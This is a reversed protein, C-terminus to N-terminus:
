ERIVKVVHEGESTIVHLFYAGAALRRLDIQWNHEDSTRPDLPPRQGLMTSVYMSLCRDSEPLTVTIIGRTPNPVIRINTPVELSVGLGTVAVADSRSHCGLADFVDVSYSGNGTPIIDM